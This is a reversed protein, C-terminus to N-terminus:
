RKMKSLEYALKVRQAEGGSLTTASQGLTMYSLGLEAMIGLKHSILKDDAFFECAEEVTMDLIEAINKGRYHVEKGENSFRTGKCVPSTSEVDAM